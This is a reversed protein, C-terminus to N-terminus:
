YKKDKTTKYLKVLALELEQHGTVWDKKGPGVTNEFHKSVGIAVDLLKRKGTSNYYAVAAEILHGGNYDEHMSMDTWRKDIGGLTYWTGIYGDNLQAAAIKDIWEDAKKELAADPHNKLSYAIAELAKYVDSDDYFIGEHKEGQHRAVKEFNKIRPTKVETQFICAPLTATAVKDLAPKWFGDTISVQSFSVPEFKRTPAQAQASTVAVSVIVSVVLVKSLKM